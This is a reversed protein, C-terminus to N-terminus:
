ENMKMPFIFSHVADVGKQSHKISNVSEQVGVIFFYYRVGFHGSNSYLAIRGLM